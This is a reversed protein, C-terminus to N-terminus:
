SVLVCRRDLSHIAIAIIIQFWQATLIQEHAIGVRSQQSADCNTPFALLM